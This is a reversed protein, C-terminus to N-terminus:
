KQDSRSIIEKLVPLLINPSRQSYHAHLYHMMRKHGIHDTGKIILGATITDDSYLLWGIDRRNRGWYLYCDEALTLKEALLRGSGKQMNYHLLQNMKAITSQAIHKDSTYKKQYLVQGRADVIKNILSSNKKLGLNRFLMFSEVLDTFSSEILCGQPSPLCQTKINVKLKSAIALWDTEHYERYPFKPIAGGSEIYFLEKLPKRGDNYWSGVVEYKENHLDITDDFAKFAQYDDDITYGKDMALLFGFIRSSKGYGMMNKLSHFHLEPEYRYIINGTKNNYVVFGLDFFRAPELSDLLFRENPDNARISQIFVERLSDAYFRFDQIPKLTSYVRIKRTNIDISSLEDELV